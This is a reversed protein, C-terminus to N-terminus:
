NTGNKIKDKIEDYVSQIVKDAFDELADAILSKLPKLFWPLPIRDLVFAIAKDKREQGTSSFYYDAAYQIAEPAKEWVSDKIKQMIKKFM